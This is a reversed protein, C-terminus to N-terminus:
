HHYKENKIITFGRYLQEIFFLRIMDHTFTMKSFALQINARQYMQPSFGFPGGIIFVLKKMGINMKHELFESFEVSTFNKGREDLLVVFDENKIKKLMNEGEKQKQLDTTQAKVNPLETQTFDIYHKLRKQYEKIGEVIFKTNTKGILILEIKM